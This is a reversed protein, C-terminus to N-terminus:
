PHSYRKPHSFYCLKDDRINSTVVAVDAGTLVSIEYGKKFVGPYRKSFKIKRDREDEIKRIPIIGRGM